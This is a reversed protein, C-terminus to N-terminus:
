FTCGEARFGLMGQPATFERLQRMVDASMTLVSEQQESWAKAVRQLVTKFGACTPCTPGTPM